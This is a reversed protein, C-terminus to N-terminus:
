GLTATRKPCLAVSAARHRDVSRLTAKGQSLGPFRTSAQRVGHGYQPGQDLLKGMRRGRGQATVMKQCPDQCLLALDSSVSHVMWGDVDFRRGLNGTLTELVRGVWITAVIGM